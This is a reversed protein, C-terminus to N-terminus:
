LVVLAPVFVFHALNNVQALAFWVRVPFVAQLFDSLKLEFWKVGIWRSVDDGVAKFIVTRLYVCIIVNAKM